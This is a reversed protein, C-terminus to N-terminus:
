ISPMPLRSSAWREVNIVFQIALRTLPHGAWTCCLNLLHDLNSQIKEKITKTTILMIVLDRPQVLTLAGITQITAWIIIVSNLRLQIWGSTIQLVHLIRHQPWWPWHALIIVNLSPLTKQTVLPQLRLIQRTHVLQKWHTLLMTWEYSPLGCYNRQLSILPYKTKFSWNADSTMQCPMWSVNMSLHKILFPLWTKPLGWCSCISTSSEKLLTM